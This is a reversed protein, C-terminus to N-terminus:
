CMRQAYVSGLGALRPVLSLEGRSIAAPDLTSGALVLWIPLLFLAVGLLLVLHAPWDFRQTM